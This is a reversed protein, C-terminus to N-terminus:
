FLPKVLAGRADREKGKEGRGTEKRMALEGRQLLLFTVLFHM